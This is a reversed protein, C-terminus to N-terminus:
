GGQLIIKNENESLLSVNDIILCVEGDGLVTCGMIGPVNRLMPAVPKVVVDIRELIEDVHIAYSLNGAGTIIMMGQTYEELPRSAHTFSFIPYSDGKFIVTDRGNVVKLSNLSPSFSEVVENIPFIYRQAGAKLVFADMTALTLPVRMIFTTGELPQSSIQLRGSIKRLNTNVVDLGVGRGSYESVEEKTSFGPQLLLAYTEEVSIENAQAPTVLGKSLAKALVTEPNIGRGDDAVIIEIVDGTLRASLTINGQAPKGQEVRVDPPEIGHEVANRLLHLLPSSVYQVIEKDILNEEGSVTINIERKLNKAMDYMARKTSHFTDGLTVMRLSMSTEQVDLVLRHLRATAEEIQAEDGTSIAHQVEMSAIITEGSLNVLTDLQRVYVGMIGEGIRNVRKRREVYAEDVPEAGIVSPQREKKASAVYFKDGAINVLEEVNTGQSFGILLGDEKLYLQEGSAGQRPAVSVIGQTKSLLHVLEFARLIINDCEDSFHVRLSDANASALPLLAFNPVPEDDQRSSHEQGKSEQEQVPAKKPARKPEQPKAAEKKVPPKAPKEEGALAKKVENLYGEIEGLLEVPKAENDDTELSRRLYDTCKLLLDALRKTDIDASPYGRLFEFLDEMRHALTAVHAEQEKETKTMADYRGLYVEM